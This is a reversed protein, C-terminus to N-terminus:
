YKSIAKDVLEKGSAFPYSVSAFLVWCFYWLMETLPLNGLITIGWKSNALLWYDNWFNPSVINFLVLYILVVAAVVTLSSVIAVRTLDTRIFLIIVTLMLFVISSVIISNVELALNFIFMSLLGLIFFLGYLRKRPQHKVKHASKALVPYIVVSLATIAFGFLFDELSITAIGALSPPRWYDRFYFLESILGAAGGVLGLKLVVRYLDKRSSIVVLFLAFVAVSLFLYTYKDMKDIM